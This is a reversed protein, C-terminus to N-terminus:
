CEGVGDYIDKEFVDGCDGVAFGIMDSAFNAATIPGCLLDLLCNSEGEKRKGGDTYV